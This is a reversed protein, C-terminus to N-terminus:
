ENQLGCMSNHRILSYKESFLLQKYPNEEEIYQYSNMSSNTSDNKIKIFLNNVKAKYDLTENQDDDEKLSFDNTSIRSESYFNLPLYEVISEYNNLVFDLNKTQLTSNVNFHKVSQKSNKLLPHLSKIDEDHNQLNMFAVSNEDNFIYQINSKKNIESSLNPDRLINDFIYNPQFDYDHHYYSLSHNNSEEVTTATVTPKHEHLYEDAIRRAESIIALDMNTINESEKVKANVNINHDSDVSSVHSLFSDKDRTLDSLKQQQSESKNASIKKSLKSSSKGKSRNNQLPSNILPVETCDNLAPSEPIDVKEVLDLLVVNKNTISLLHCSDKKKFTLISHDLKTTKLEEILIMSKSTAKREGKVDKASSNTLKDSRTPQSVHKVTKKVKSVTKVKKNDLLNLLNPKNRKPTMLDFDTQNKIVDKTKSNKHEIKTQSNGIECLLKPIRSTPNSNAPLVLKSMQPTNDIEKIQSARTKKINDVYKRSNKTGSNTIKDISDILIINEDDNKVCLNNKNNFKFALTDRSGIDYHKDSGKMDRVSFNISKSPLHSGNSNQERMLKYSNKDQSKASNNDIVDLLDRSRINSLKKKNSHGNPTERIGEISDKLSINQSSLIDFTEIVQLNAGDKNETESTVGCPFEDNIHLQNTIETRNSVDKENKSTLDFTQCRKLNYYSLSKDKAMTRTTITKLVKFRNGNYEKSKGKMNGLFISEVKNTNLCQNNNM